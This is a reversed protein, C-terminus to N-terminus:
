PEYGLLLVSCKSRGSNKPTVPLAEQGLVVKNKSKKENYFDLDSERVLNSHEVTSSDTYSRNHGDILAIHPIRSGTLIGMTLLYASDALAIDYTLIM